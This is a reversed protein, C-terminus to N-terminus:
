KYRILNYDKGKIFMFKVKNAGIVRDIHQRSAITPRPSYKFINDYLTTLKDINKSNSLFWIDHYATDKDKHTRPSVYFYNYDLNKFEISKKFIIDFRSIMVCDYKFSEENEYEKKLEIVKKTSHWRSNVRPVLSDIVKMTKDQTKYAKLLPALDKRNLDDVSINYDKSSLHTFDIQKEIIHKKPKYLNLLRKKHSISWSHIFVDINYGNFLKKYSKYGIAPDIFGGKGDRGKTGGIIGFLCLAIKM